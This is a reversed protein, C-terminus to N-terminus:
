FIHMKAGEALVEVQDGFRCPEGPAGLFEQHTLPGSQGLALKPLSAWGPGWGVQSAGRQWGQGARM